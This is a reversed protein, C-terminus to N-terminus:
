RFSRCYERAFRDFDTIEMLGLSWFWLFPRGQILLIESPMDPIAIQRRVGNETWIGPICAASWCTDEFDIRHQADIRCHIEADPKGKIPKYDEDANYVIKTRYEPKATSDTPYSQYEMHPGHYHPLVTHFRIRLLTDGRILTFGDTHSALATAGFYRVSHRTAAPLSDVLFLTDNRITTLYSPSEHYDGVTFHYITKGLLFSGDIMLNECTYDPAPHEDLFHTRMNPFQSVRCWYGSISRYATDRAQRVSDFAPIRDFMAPGSAALRPSVKMWDKTTRIVMATSYGMMHNSHLGAFYGSDIRFLSNVGTTYLVRTDKSREDYVYLMSGFEGGDTCYFTMNSDEAVVEFCNVPLTATYRKWQDKEWYYLQEFKETFLTDHYVGIKKHFDTNMVREMMTDRCLQRCDFVTFGGNSTTSVVRGQYLVSSGLNEFDLYRRICGNLMQEGDVEIDLQIKIFPSNPDSNHQRRCAGVLLALLLTLLLLHRRFYSTGNDLGVPCKQPSGSQVEPTTFSFQM